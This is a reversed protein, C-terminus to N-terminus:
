PCKPMVFLFVSNGICFVFYELTGLNYIGRTASKNHHCTLNYKLFYKNFFTLVHVYSVFFTLRLMNLFEDYSIKTWSVQIEFINSAINSFNKICNKKNIERGEETQQWGRGNFQSVEEYGESTSSIHLYEKFSLLFLECKKEM